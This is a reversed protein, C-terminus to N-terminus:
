IRMNQSCTSYYVVVLEQTSDPLFLSRRRVVIISNTLHLLRNSFFPWNSYSSYTAPIVTITDTDCIVKTAVEEGAAASISLLNM